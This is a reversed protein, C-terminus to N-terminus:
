FQISGPVGLPAPGKTVPGPAGAEFLVAQVSTYLTPGTFSGSVAWSLTRSADDWAWQTQRTATEPSSIYATTEGDDEVLTHAGDAGAYVHVVLAGGLAGTYQVVDRQLTLIAGSRVFLVLESLGVDTYTLNLIPGTLATTTNFRYWQGPPVNVTTQMHCLPLLVPPLPASPNNALSTQSGTVGLATCVHIHLLSQARRGSVTNENPDSVRSTSVDAPLLHEGVMYTVDGVAVPFGPVNGPFVYSAPQVIPVLRVHSAWALSYLHPLFAYRTDLAARFAEQHAPSDPAWMFPFRPVGHMAHTRM